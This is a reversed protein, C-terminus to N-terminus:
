FACVGSFNSFGKIPSSPIDIVLSVSPTIKANIFDHDLSVIPISEHDLVRRGRATLHQLWTSHSVWRVTHQYYWIAPLKQPTSIKTIKM